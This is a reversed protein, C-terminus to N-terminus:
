PRNFKSLLTNVGARIGADYGQDYADSPRTLPSSAIGEAADLVEQRGDRYGKEYMPKLDRVAEERVSRIFSKLSDNLGKYYEQLNKAHEYDGGYQAHVKISDLGPFKEDFREEWSEKEVPRGEKDYCKFCDTGHVGHECRDEVPRPSPQGLFCSKCVRQNDLRYHVNWPLSEGCKTCKEGESTSPQFDHLERNICDRPNAWYMKESIECRICRREQKNMHNKLYSKM